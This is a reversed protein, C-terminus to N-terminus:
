LDGPRYTSFNWLFGEVDTTYYGRAGYPTDHPEELVRAGAHHARAWHEDVDDVWVYTCQTDDRWHGTARPAASIIIYDRGLKLEAHVITGDEGPVELSPTFGFADKLWRAAARGEPYHLGVFLGPKGDPSAMGYTGVSWLHDGIDRVSFERSGYPTDRLPQVIEAGAQEARHCMADVNALCVYVGQRVATWPNDADPPGASSIGIAASGLRLEGHAIGGEPTHHIDHRIFGYARVLWDIAAPADDYRFVPSIRADRSTDM